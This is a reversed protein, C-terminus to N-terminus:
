VGLTKMRKKPKTIHPPAAYRPMAFAGGSGRRLAHLGRELARRDPASGRVSAVPVGYAFAFGNVVTAVQRSTSFKSNGFILVAGELRSPDAVGESRLFGVCSKLFHRSDLERQPGDKGARAIVSEGLFLFLIM